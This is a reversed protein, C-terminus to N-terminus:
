RKFVNPYSSKLNRTNLAVSPTPISKGKWTVCWGKQEDDDWIRKGKVKPPDQKWEPFKGIFDTLTNL